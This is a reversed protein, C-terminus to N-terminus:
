TSFTYLTKTCNCFNCPTRLHATRWEQLIHVSVKHAHRENGWYICPYYCTEVLQARKM